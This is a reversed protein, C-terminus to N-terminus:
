SVPSPIGSHIRRDRWRALRERRLGHRRAFAALSEGSQEWAKVILKASEARWYGERLAARLVEGRDSGTKM